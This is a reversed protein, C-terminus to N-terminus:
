SLLLLSPFREPNLHRLLAYGVGAEGFFLSASSSSPLATSNTQSMRLMGNGARCAVDGAMFQAHELFLRNRLLRGAISFTEARGINGCCLHDRHLPAAHLLIEATAKASAGIIPDGTIDFGAAQALLMGALGRCWGSHAEAPGTHAVADAHHHTLAADYALGAVGADRYATNHTRSFLRLLSFGIGTTGYAFGSLAVGENSTWTGGAGEDCRNLLRDGCLVARESLAQGDMLSGFETQEVALLALLLGACGTVVDLSRSHTVSEPTILELVDPGAALLHDDNLWQGALVLTYLFGGWGVLGGMAGVHGSGAARARSRLQGIKVRLPALARLAIARAKKDGAAAYYAALFLAVGCTGDYLHPGLPLAEGSESEALWNTAGGPGTIASGILRDAITRVAEEM